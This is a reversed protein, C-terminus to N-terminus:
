KILEVFDDWMIIAINYKPLGVRIVPDRGTRHAQGLAKDMIDQSIVFRSGRMVMKDDVYWDENRADGKSV